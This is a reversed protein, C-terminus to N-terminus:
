TTSQGESVAAEQVSRGQGAVRLDLHFEAVPLEPVGEVGYSCLHDDSFSSPLSM